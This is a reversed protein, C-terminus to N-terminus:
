QQLLRSSYDVAFHELPKKSENKIIVTALVMLNEFYRIGLVTSRITNNFSINKKEIKTLFGAM